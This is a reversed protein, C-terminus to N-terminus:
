IEIKIKLFPSHYKPTLLKCSNSTLLCLRASNSTLFRVSNSTHQISFFFNSLSSSLNFSNSTSSKRILWFLPGSSRGNDQQTCTTFFCDFALVSAQGSSHAEMRKLLCHLQTQRFNSSRKKVTNLSSTKIM